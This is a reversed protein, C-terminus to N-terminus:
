IAYKQLVLRKSCFLFHCSESSKMFICWSCFSNKLKQKHHCYWHRPSWRNIRAFYTCVIAGTLLSSLLTSASESLLEYHLHRACFACKPMSLMNYSQKGARMQYVSMNWTELPYHGFSLIKEAYPNRVFIKM